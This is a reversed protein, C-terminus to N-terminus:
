ALIGRERMAQIQADTVGLERLVEDSDQGLAPANRRHGGPTLSLKPVFGPVALRSGDDLTIAELMGRAAYHADAHIPHWDNSLMCALGLEHENLTRADSRWRQGVHVQSLDAILTPHEAREVTCEEGARQGM